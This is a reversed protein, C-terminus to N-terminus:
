EYDWIKAKTKILRDITSKQDVLYNSKHYEIQYDVNVPVTFFMPDLTVNFELCVGKHSDSYHSWMLINDNIPSFCCIKTREKQAQIVNEVFRCFDAMNKVANFVINSAQSRSIKGVKEMYDCIEVHTYTQPMVLRGDFPDNFDDLKSFWLYDNQLSDMFNENITRYRYLYKPLSGQDVAYNISESHVLSM